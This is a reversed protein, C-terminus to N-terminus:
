KGGDKGSAKSSIDAADGEGGQVGDEGYSLIEFSAGEKRYVYENGWPDLIKGDSANDPDMAPPEGNPGPELLCGPFESTEPLKGTASRLRLSQIAGKIEQIQTKAVDRKATLFHGFVNTAVVGGVLALIAVAILIELLSFGGQRRRSDHRNQM